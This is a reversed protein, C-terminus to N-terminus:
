ITLSAEFAKNLIVFNKKNRKWSFSGFITVSTIIVKQEKEIIQIYVNEGWTWFNVATTVLLEGKSKNSDVLKFPMEQIVENLKEFLLDPPIESEIIQENTELLNNITKLFWSKSKLNNRILLNYILLGLPILFISIAIFFNNTLYSITYYLVLTILTLIFPSKKKKKM